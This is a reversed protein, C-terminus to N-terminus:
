GQPSLSWERHVSGMVGPFADTSSGALTSSSAQRSGTALAPFGAGFPLTGNNACTDPPGSWTFPIGPSAGFAVFLLYAPDKVGQQVSSDDGGNPDAAIDTEGHGACQGDSMDLVLHMNGAAPRYYAYEGPPSGSPGPGVHELVLTLEGSWSLQGSAGSVAVPISGSVPGVYRAPPDCIMKAVDDVVSKELEFIGAGAAGTHTVSRELGTVTNTVTVTLTATAGSVTLTGTVVRNHGILHGSPIRSGPDFEPGQSRKQEAIAVDLHEREVIVGDCQKKLPGGVDGILMDAIGKSLVSYDDPGSVAFHQIWVAPYTVSVFGADAAARAKRKPKPRIHGGRRRLSLRVKRSSSTAIRLAGVKREVGAHGRLPTTTALLVYAGAKVHLVFRGSRVRADAM